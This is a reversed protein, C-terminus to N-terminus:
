YALLQWLFTIALLHCYFSPFMQFYYTTSKCPSNCTTPLPWFHTYSATSSLCHQHPMKPHKLRYAHLFVQVGKKSKYFSSIKVFVFVILWHTFPVMIFMISGLNWDVGEIIL